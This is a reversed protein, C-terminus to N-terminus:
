FNRHVYAGMFSRNQEFCMSCPSECLLRYVYVDTVDPKLHVIVTKSLEPQCLLIGYVPHSLCCFNIEQLEPPQFGLSLTGAQNPNQHSSRRQTFLHQWKVM